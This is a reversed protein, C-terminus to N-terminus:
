LLFVKGEIIVKNGRKYGILAIRVEDDEVRYFVRLNRVRLEFDAHPSPRRLRFRHRTEERADAEGLQEKLAARSLSRESAKLRRFHRVADPSLVVRRKVRGM